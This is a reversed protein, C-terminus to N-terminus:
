FDGHNFNKPQDISIGMRKFAFESLHDKRIDDELGNWVKSTFKTIIEMNRKPAQRDLDRLAVNHEAILADRKAIWDVEDMADKCVCCFGAVNGGVSFQIPFARNGCYVCYRTHDSTGITSTPKADSIADWSMKYGGKGPDGHSRGVFGQSFHKHSRPDAYDPIAM